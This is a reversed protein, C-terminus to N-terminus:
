HVSHVSHVTCVWEDAIHRIHVKFTTVMMEKSQIKSNRGYVNIRFYFIGFRTTKLVHDFISSDLNFSLLKHHVVEIVNWKWDGSLLGRGSTGGNSAAQEDDSYRWQIDIACIEHVSMTKEAGDVEIVDPTMEPTSADDLNLNSINSKHDDEGDAGLDVDELDGHDGNMGNLGNLSGNASHVGNLKPLLANRDRVPQLKWSICIKTNMSNTNLAIIQPCVRLNRNDGHLNFQQQQTMEEKTRQEIYAIKPINQLIPVTDLVVNISKHIYKDREKWEATIRDHIDAIQTINQQNAEENETRFTKSFHVLKSINGSIEQQQSQYKEELNQLLQSQTASLMQIIMSFQNEIEIKQTKYENKAIRSLKELSDRERESKNIRVLIEDLM